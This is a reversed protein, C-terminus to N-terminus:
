KKHIDKKQRSKYLPTNMIRKKNKRMDDIGMTSFLLLTLLLIAYPIFTAKIHIAITILLLYAISSGLYMFALFEPIEIADKKIRKKKDCIVFIDIVIALAIIILETTNM